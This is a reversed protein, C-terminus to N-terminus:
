RIGALGRRVRVGLSVAIFLVIIPIIIINAIGAAV